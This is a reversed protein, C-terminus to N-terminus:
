KKDDTAPNNILRGDKEFRSGHCPCDWTHEAKNYKLACGMHPCRPVTPTLLSLVAEAGNIALQPFLSRRQPSFIDAYPNQKGCILDCLIIASTMSGTMGWKSFGTAVYLNPTNKSYKGIYPIKDLSMCDQTAWRGVESAKPYYKKAFDSLEQWNGGNKGTRHGGGGVLLMGNYSRFSMGRDNEDVYVDDFLAAGNLAIEYSRYQYLKLFYGGHKNLFPFHTAVIISEAKIKGHNTVAGGPVLDTVKTNEYITLEKSIESLFKLPNFQAQNKMEIAGKTSFPLPVKEYFDTTCGIKNLAEVEKELKKRDNRTYVFSSCTKFDCDINECLEKYKDLATNQALYYGEATDKGYESIIKDYLLGHQCTIKATTYQTVGRCIRDAEVVVCDLGANKLMYACLIGTIGGGIILVDTKKDENLSEFNPLEVSKSWVSEM